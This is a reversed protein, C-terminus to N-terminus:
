AVTSVGTWVTGGNTNVFMRDAVGSGAANLYLSGVPATVTGNPDGSGSLIQVGNGMVVATGPTLLEVNGIAAVINGGYSVVNGQISANGVTTVIDGTSATINGTTATIGTGATVTTNASLAGASSVIDGTTAVIGTGATVTTSASLAGGSIIDGTDTSISGGSLASIDGNSATIDGTTATIGTGATVTGSASVNGSTVNMDGDVVQLSNVTVADFEPDASLTVTATSGSGAVSMNAGDGVVSIAGGVPNVDGSDTHVTDIPGAIGGGSINTWVAAAGSSSTLIFANNNLYNIWMSGVEALDNVGPNRNATVTAPPLTVTEGRVNYVQVPVQTLAAM